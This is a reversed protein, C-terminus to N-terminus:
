SILEHIRECIRSTDVGVRSVKVQAQITHFIKDGNHSLSTNIVEAGEEQIITIIEHLKFNKRLGSILVVELNSGFDGIKLIPLDSSGSSMTPIINNNNTADARLALETKKRKLEEIREKLNKIYGAAQELQDQQSLYKPPNFHHPPILSILNFCLGNMHMRRNKEIIKRELKKGGGGSSSSEGKNMM